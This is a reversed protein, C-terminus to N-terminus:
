FHLYILPKVQKDVKERCLLTRIFKIKKTQSILFTIFVVVKHM